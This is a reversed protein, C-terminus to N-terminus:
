LPDDTEIAMLHIRAGLDSPYGRIGSKAPDYPTDTWLTYVGTPPGDPSDTPRTIVGGVKTLDNSVALSLTPGSWPPTIKLIQGPLGDDRSAAAELTIRVSQGARPIPGILGSGQRSWRAPLVADGTKIQSQNGWRRRLALPGDDFIKRVALATGNTIPIGKLIDVDVVYKRCEAPLATKSVIRDFSATQHGVSELTVGDELGPNEYATVWFVEEQGARQALWKALASLGPYGYESLGIVRTKGSAAFPVSYPYYDFFTLHQNLNKSFSSVWASAGKEHRALYPAPWQIFNWLGAILLGGSILTTFFRGARHECHRSATALPPILAVILLMVFPILRRQSWLGMPEFGKLYFFFPSLFITVLLLARSRPHDKICFTALIGALLIAAYGWRVGDWYERLGAMVLTKGSWVSTPVAFPLSALILFILLLTPHSIARRLGQTLRTKLSPSGVTVAVAGTLFIVTFLLLFRLLPQTGLRNVFEQWNTINGYPQCGWVTMAWLPALGAAFAILTLLIGKKSLTPDILMMTLAPLALLIAVPHFCVALGIALPAFVRFVQSKVSLTLGLLVMLALGAAASEAYYGRFLYAPLPTGILLVLSALLGYKNGLATGTCLVMAFILLGIFPVFYDGRISGALIDLGAAAMPLFPYFYPQITCNKLSTIQFSRDRTERGWQQYELLVSRRLPDPVELLTPDTDHLQRGQAFAHAMLRYCSTDLGTFTDEHPRLLLFGAALISIALLAQTILSNNRLRARLSLFIPASIGGAIVIILLLWIVSLTTM